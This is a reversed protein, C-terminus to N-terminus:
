RVVEVVLEGTNRIRRDIFVEYSNDVKKAWTRGPPSESDDPQLPGPWGTPLLDKANVLSKPLVVTGLKDVEVESTCEGLQGGEIPHVVELAIMDSLNNKILYDTFEKVYKDVVCSSSVPSPGTGFGFPVLRNQEPVFKFLEM